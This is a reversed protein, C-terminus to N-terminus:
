YSENQNNKFWTPPPWFASARRSLPLDDDSSSYCDCMWYNPGYGGYGDDIPEDDGENIFEDYGNSCCVKPKEKEFKLEIGEDVHYLVNGKCGSFYKSSISYSCDNGLFLIMDGLSKVIEWKHKEENLCCIQMKVATHFESGGRM